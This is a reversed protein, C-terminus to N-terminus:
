TNCCKKKIRKSKTDTLVIVDTNKKENNQSLKYIDVALKLFITEINKNNKASTEIYSMGYKEAFNEAEEISVSRFEVDSKNGVLVKITEKSCHDDLEGLWDKIDEFSKRNSVDYVLIIGNSGRYYASNITRFREQGATDWIQLKISKCNLELKKVKFDVGITMLFNSDFVKDVYRSLMSTKGVGSNGVLIVKFLYDYRYIDYNDKM